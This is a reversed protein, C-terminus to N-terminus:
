MVELNLARSGQTGIFSCNDVIAGSFDALNLDANDFTSNSIKAYRFSAHVLDCGTFHVNNLVSNSFDCHALFSATFITEEISTNTLSSGILNSFSIEVNSFYHNSLNMKKLNLFSVRQGTILTQNRITDMFIESDNSEGLNKQSNELEGFQIKSIPHYSIPLIENTQFSTPETPVSTKQSRIFLLLLFAIFFFLITILCDDM